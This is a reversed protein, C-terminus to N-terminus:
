IARAQRAPCELDQVIQVVAAGAAASTLVPSPAPMRMWIGCSNKASTACSCAADRQGGGALVADAQDEQGAFAGTRRLISCASRSADDLRSPWSNRPQRVTGVSLAESPSV